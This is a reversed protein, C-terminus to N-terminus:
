FVNEKDNKKQFTELIIKDEERKWSCEEGINSDSQSQNNSSSISSNSDSECNDQSSEECFKNM